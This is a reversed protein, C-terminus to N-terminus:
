NTAVPIRYRWGLRIEGRNKRKGPTIPAAPPMAPLLFRDCQFRGHRAAQVFREIFSSRMRSSSASGDARPFTRAGACCQRARPSLPPTLQVRAHWCKRAPQSRTQLLKEAFRLEIGRPESLFSGDGRLAAVHGLFQRSQAAVHLLEFRQKAPAASTPLFSSKRSCSICRSDFVSSEFVGPCRLAFSQFDRAQASSILDSISFNRSCTCFM